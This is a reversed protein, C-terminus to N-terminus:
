VDRAQVCGSALYVAAAGDSIVSANGATVTLPAKPNLPNRFVPKLASLKALDVKFVEEDQVVQGKGKRGAVEVPVIEAKFKGAKTAAQARRYSEEAYKDQAERSLKFKEACVEACCGMPYKGYPDTLGDKMMGDIQVTDGIRAGTRM